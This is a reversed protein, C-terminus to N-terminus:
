DSANSTESNNSLNLLRYIRILYELVLGATMGLISILLLLVVALSSWGRVAPRVGFAGLVLITAVAFISVLFTIFSSVSIIRIFRTGFLLIGDLALSYKSAFNFNSKGEERADREYTIAKVQGFRSSIHGRIFLGESPLKSISKYIRRTILYFDQFGAIFYGDSLGKLVKYFVNRVFTIHRAESRKKAVGAIIEAGNLWETIFLQAVNVPDQMDAQYVLFADSDSRKMMDQISAQFSLPTRLHIVDFRDDQKFANNVAEESNDTSANQNIIVSVAIDLSECFEILEFLTQALRPINYEENKLPVAITLSKM